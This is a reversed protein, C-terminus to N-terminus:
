EGEGEIVSGGIVRTNDCHGVSVGGILPHESDENVINMAEALSTAKIIYDVELTVRYTNM